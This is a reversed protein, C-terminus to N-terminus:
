QRQKSCCQQQSATESSVDYPTTEVNADPLHYSPLYINTVQAQMLNTPSKIPVTQIKSLFDPQQKDM